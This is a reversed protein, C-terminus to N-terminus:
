ESNSISPAPHTIAPRLRPHDDGTFTSPTVIARM